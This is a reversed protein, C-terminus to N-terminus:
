TSRCITVKDINRSISISPSATSVMLLTTSTKADKKSGFHVQKKSATSLLLSRQPCQAPAFKQQSLTRESSSNIPPSIIVPKQNASAAYQHLLSPQIRSKSLNTPVEVKEGNPMKRYKVVTLAM